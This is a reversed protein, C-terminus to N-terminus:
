TGPRTTGSWMWLRSATTTGTSGPSTRTCNLFPSVRTVFSTGPSASKKEPASACLSSAMTPEGLIIAISNFHGVDDGPRRLSLERDGVGLEAASRALVDPDATALEDDVGYGWLVDATHTGNIWGARIDGARDGIMWTSAADLSEDRLVIAILDAKDTLRGDLGSGYIRRFLPHLEFHKVIASAYEQPRSTVVWLAHGAANLRGLEDAIGPYVANEFM